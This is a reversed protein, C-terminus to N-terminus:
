GPSDGFSRLSHWEIVEQLLARETKLVIHELSNWTLCAAVEARNATLLARMEQYRAVRRQLDNISIISILSAAVVPLSIQLFVFATSEVWAPVAIGLTRTATYTAICAIALLTAIWFGAMFRRYAPLARGVQRGFYAIQDDIRRALYTRKFEDIPLSRTASSRTHLVYLARALRQAGALDLDQLLPAARPLGWTALASRCFEAALRCRVWSHHSNLHRRLVLAAALGFTVCLLKAWPLALAHLAYAVTATAILTAMVHSLVTAVILRRFHPAGRSAHYDCKQQFRVVPEPAGFPNDGSGGGAEPLSNLDELIVDRLELRDWNERRVALTGPDIILVPKGTSIAYQVVEATGGKGRAHNGDWLAVVVDAGNATEVGCDLYGDERDGYEHIVRVHDATALMEEVAPWEEPTFDRAFEARPLPLIAHWSLGAARAERVFLQDGGRAVSSLAIWEGPIERMLSALAAGIARGAGEPDALQRHGTFGVIHFLPLRGAVADPARATDSASL